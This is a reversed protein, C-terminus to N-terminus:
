DDTAGMQASSLDRDEGTGGPAGDAGYTKVEFARGDPGPVVLLFPRGWPDILQAPELFYESAPDRSLVDLGEAGTPLRHSTIRFLELAEVIRVIQTRAIETKARGLRGGLGVVLTTSLLGLIIVVALIEVLTMGQRLRTRNHIGSIM